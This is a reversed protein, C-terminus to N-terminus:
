LVIASVGGITFQQGPIYTGHNPNGYIGFQPDTPGYGAYMDKIWGVSAEIAANRAGLPTKIGVFRDPLLQPLQNTTRGRANAASPPGAIQYCPVGLSELKALSAAFQAADAVGDLMVVGLLDRAAGNDVTSGGVSTAFGGGKGLGVVLFKEPLSGYHGAATASRNLALRDGIFQAAVAGALIESSVSGGPADLSRFTPAVVISNTQRALETALRAFSAANGTDARQLWIVGSTADQHNSHTPFYWDATTLANQVLILARQALYDSREEATLQFRLGTGKQTVTAGAISSSMYNQIQGVTNGRIENGVVLSDSCGGAATIGFTGNWGISNGSGAASGGIRVGRAALLSVGAASNGSFSNGSIVTGAYAGPGIQIGFGNGKCMVGTIRSGQSGGVFRIGAGSFDRIMRGSTTTSFVVNQVNAGIVLGHTGAATGTGDLSIGQSVTVRSAKALTLGSLPTAGGVDGAFTIPGGASVSLRGAGDVTSSFSIPGGARLDVDGQLTVAGNFAQSGLPARTSAALQIGHSGTQGQTVLNVAGTGKTVVPGAIRITDDTGAATNISVGQSAAGRVVAAFNVGGSGITVSDTGAGGVVSLGAFNPLTNLNVSITDAKADVSIGKIPAVTSITGATAATITLLGLKANYATGLNTIATGAPDLTLAVRNGILSVVIDDAALM